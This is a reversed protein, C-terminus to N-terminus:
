GLPVRCVWNWVVVACPCNARSVEGAKKGDAGDEPALDGAEKARPLDPAMARRAACGLEAVCSRDQTRFSVFFQWFRFM